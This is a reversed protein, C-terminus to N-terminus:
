FRCLFDLQEVKCKLQNQQHMAKTEAELDKQVKVKLENILEIVKSVPSASNANAAVGVISAAAVVRLM